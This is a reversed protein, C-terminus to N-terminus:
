KQLRDERRKRSKIWVLGGVLALIPLGVGAVPGPAGVLTGSTGAAPNTGAAGAGAGASASTTVNGQDSPLGPM